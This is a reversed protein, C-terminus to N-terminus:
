LPYIPKLSDKILFPFNTAIIKKAIINFSFNLSIIDGSSAFILIFCNYSTFFRSPPKKCIKICFKIQFVYDTQVVFWKWCNKGFTFIKEKPFSDIKRNQFFWGRKSSVFNLNNSNIDSTNLADFFIEKLPLLWIKFNKM